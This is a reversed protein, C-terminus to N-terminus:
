YRVHLNRGIEFLKILRKMPSASLYLCTFKLLVQVRNLCVKLIYACVRVCM